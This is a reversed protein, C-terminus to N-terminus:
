DGPLLQTRLEGVSRALVDALEALDEPALLSERAQRELAGCARSLAVAGLSAGSGKLRHALRGVEDADGGTVADHLAELTERASREFLELLETRAAGDFGDRIGGLVNPDLTPEAPADIAAEARGAPRAPAAGARGPLWRVLVADIDAPRIPKTLYDDMGAAICRERGGSLSHATMAIIPTATNAGAARIRRTADYGDLEPMQCDMFIAAYCRSSCRAVAEVGNAAVEIQLGRQTLMTGAVMQNVENDEAVLVLPADGPVERADPGAGSRGAPLAVATDIPGAAPALRASFWFVSGREDGAAAGIEGGMLEALERSIALGLGTGGYQRTTSQDAQAFPAFLRPISQPAIGIGTDAVAFRVRGSEELGVTVVIEGEATFKVANSLLNLLIQRLRARDGHVAAPVAPDITHRLGLGKTRAGEAVILCSEQVLRHLSFDTPDLELRRADLKSFDLVHGIVALLAEGSAALADVYERQDPTLDTGGLLHAMGLVGNLPTRLEHSMNALFDSKIRAAELEAAMARKRETVDNSIGGITPEGGATAPILFKVSLFSREGAPTPVTYEATIPQGTRIIREDDAAIEEAVGPPGFAAETAGIVEEVRLDRARLFARNVVQYAGHVDKIYIISEAHDLVGQLQDRLLGIARDREGLADAMGNFSRELEGVEGRGTEPVRLDRRGRGHGRAVEAVQAVPALISRVLYAGILAIVVLMAAFGAAAVAMARKASQRSAAARRAGLDQEIRTIAAFRARLADVLQKGRRTLAIGRGLALHGDLAALPKAYDREYTGIAAALAAARRRQDPTTLAAELTRLQGPLAAVAAQYPALFARERTLLYGRLGTELDIVSRETASAVQLARTTDQERQATDSMSSIGLALSAFIGGVLLVVAALSRFAAARLSRPRAREGILTAM